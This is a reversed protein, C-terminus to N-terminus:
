PVALNEAPISTISFQIQIQSPNDLDRQKPQGAVRVPFVDMKRGTTDGEPFIVIFGTTDRTLLTRVDNSTSSMYM